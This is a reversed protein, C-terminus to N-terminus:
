KNVILKVLEIIAALALSIGGVYVIVRGLEQFWTRASDLPKIKKSLAELNRDQEVLHDAIKDIKGNVTVKVSDAVANQIFLASPIEKIADQIQKFSAQDAKEHEIQWTQINKLIKSTKLHSKKIGQIDNEIMISRERM